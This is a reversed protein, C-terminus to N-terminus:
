YSCDQLIRDLDIRQLQYNDAMDNRIEFVELADSNIIRGVYKIKTGEDTIKSLQFLTNPYIDSKVIMSQLDSYKLENSMVKGTFVFKENFRIAVSQGPKAVLTNKLTSKSIEISGPFEIFISKISKDNKQAFVSMSAITTLLVLVAKTLTKM